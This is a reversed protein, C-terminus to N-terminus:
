ATEKARPSCEHSITLADEESAGCALALTYGSSESVEGRLKAERVTSECLGSEEALKAVGNKGNKLVKARVLEKLRESSM